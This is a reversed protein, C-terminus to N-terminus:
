SGLVAVSVLIDSLFHVQMREIKLAIIGVSNSYDRQLNFSHLAKKSLRLRVRRSSFEWSGSELESLSLFHRRRKNVDKM